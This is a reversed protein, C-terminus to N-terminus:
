YGKGSTGTLTGTTVSHVIDTDQTKLASLAAGAGRM